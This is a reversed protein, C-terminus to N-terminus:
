ATSRYSRLFNELEEEFNSGSRLVKGLNRMFREAIGNARPWFPIIRRHKFGENKAFHKFDFANFPPGNDSRIIKPIGFTSFINRLQNIVIKSSTSKIKNVVRYRSYDDILVLLYSGDNLPGYFDLSLESWPETPLSSM